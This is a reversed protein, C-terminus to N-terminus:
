RNAVGMQKYLPPRAIQGRNAVAVAAVVIWLLAAFILYYLIRPAGTALPVLIATTCATHIAHMLMAVLLSETRDYVWVMLVRYVPLVGVLFLFEPLFLALSFAGASDGSGWIYVLSHWATWLLGVILGTTLIGYRRRLRPIAFGTWGLEELFGVVLGIAIGTLLLSVKDDTTVIAPLFLPSTRALALLIATALLPTTLLAVAYWRAGVRWRCLRSLLEAVGVRGTVLATLLLGAVSPGSLMVLIAVPLLLMAQASPSPIAGPGGIVVLIGGWSLAFTLAFYIPLSHKKIFAQITTM